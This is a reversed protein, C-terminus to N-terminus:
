KLEITDLKFGLLRGDVSKLKSVPATPNIVNIKLYNLGNILNKQSDLYVSQNFNEPIELFKIKKNNLYFELKLMDKDNTIASSINLKIFKVKESNHSRFFISSSYGESWSGGISISRGELNHSWGTGLFGNPDRFKIDM